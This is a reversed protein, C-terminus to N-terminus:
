VARTQHRGDPGYQADNYDGRITAGLFSVVGMTRCRAVRLLRLVGCGIRVVM